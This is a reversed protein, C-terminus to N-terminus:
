RRALADAAAEALFASRNDTVADIRNLLSERITINVRVARDKPASVSVLFAAADSNDPDAMVEELPTPLPLTARDELLGSVHLALAEEAMKRADEMTAGATVCGPFDPFDVSYDSDTDKRLLAIYDSM